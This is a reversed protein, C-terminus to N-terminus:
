RHILLSINIPIFREFLTPVLFVFLEHYVRYIGDLLLLCSTRWNYQKKFCDIYTGLFALNSQLLFVYSVYYVAREIAPNSPFSYNTDVGLHYLTSSFLLLVSKYMSFLVVLQHSFYTHLLYIKFIYITIYYELCM